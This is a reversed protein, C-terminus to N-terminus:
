AKRYLSSPLLNFLAHFRSAASLTKLEKVFFSEFFDDKDGVAGRFFGPLFLCGRLDKRPKSKRTGFTPTSGV